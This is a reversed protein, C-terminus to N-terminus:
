SIKAGIADTINVYILRPPQRSGSTTEIYYDSIAVKQFSPQIKTSRTTRSVCPHFNSDLPILLKLIEVGLQYYVKHIYLRALPLAQVTTLGPNSCTQSPRVFRRDRPFQARKKMISMELWLRLWTFTTSALTQGGANWAYCTFYCGIM